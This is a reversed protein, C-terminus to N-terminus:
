KEFILKGYEEILHYNTVSLQPFMSLEKQSLYRSYNYRAILVRWESGTGFADGYKTLEKVPIAMELIWYDDKDKWNNLTGKLQAAILIDELKMGPEFCSPLGSRGRGPFWFSTKKENPTGYIEWYWSSKEPKLFIEVLDGTTYLHQQDETGEQVIDSDYFKIAVYLYNEDWAMQVEGEEQLTNGEKVKDKSLSLKYKQADKWVADDCKGDVVVPRESYKAIVPVLEVPVKTGIGTKKPTLACGSFFLLVCLVMLIGKGKNM